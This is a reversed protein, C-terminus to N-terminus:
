SVPNTWILDEPPLVVGVQLHLSEVCLVLLFELDEVLFVDEDSVLEKLHEQELVWTSYENRVTYVIHGTVNM